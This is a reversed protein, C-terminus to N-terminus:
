AAAAVEVTSLLSGSITVRTPGHWATPSMHLLHPTHAELFDFEGVFTGTDNYEHFMPVTTTTSLAELKPFTTNYKKQTPFAYYELLNQPEELYCSTSAFSKKMTYQSCPSFRVANEGASVSPFMIFHDDNPFCQDEIDQTGPLAM